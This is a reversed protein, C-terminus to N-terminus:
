GLLELRVVLELSFGGPAVVPLDALVKVQEGDLLFFHASTEHEPVGFTGDHPVHNLPEPLVDVELAAVVQEVGRVDALSIEPFGGAVGVKVGLVHVLGDVHLVLRVLELGHVAREVDGNVLIAVEGVAIKRDAPRLHTGHVPVLTAARHVAQEAHSAEGLVVRVYEAERVLDGVLDFPHQVQRLVDQAGEPKRLKLHVEGRLRLLRHAPRLDPVLGLARQLIRQRLLTPVVLNVLAAAGKVPRLNVDLDEVGDAALPLAGGHLEVEVEGLPEVERVDVLLVRLLPGDHDM